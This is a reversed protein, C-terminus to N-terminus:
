KLIDALDFPESIPSYQPGSYTPPFHAFGPQNSPIDRSEAYGQHYQPAHPQQQGVPNLQVPPSAKAVSQVNTSGQMLIQFLGKDIEIKDQKENKRKRGRAPKDEKLIAVEKESELSTSFHCCESPHYMKQQVSLMIQTLNQMSANLGGLEQKICNLTQGLNLIERVSKDTYHPLVRQLSPHNEEKLTSLLLGVERLLSQAGSGSM